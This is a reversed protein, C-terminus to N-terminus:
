AVGGEAAPLEEDPTAVEVPVCCGDLDDNESDAPSNVPTSSAWKMELSFYAAPFASDAFATNELGVPSLREM